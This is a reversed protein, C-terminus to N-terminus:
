MVSRRHQYAKDQNSFVRVQQINDMAHEGASEPRMHVTIGAVHLCYDSLMRVANRLM